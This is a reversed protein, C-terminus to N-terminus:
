EDEKRWKPEWPEGNELTPPKPNTKTVGDQAEYADLFAILRYANTRLCDRYTPYEYGATMGAGNELIFDLNEKFTRKAMTNKGNKKAWPYTGYATAKDYTTTDRQIPKM